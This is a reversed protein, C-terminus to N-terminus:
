PPDAVTGGRLTMIRDFQEGLSPDNSITVLAADTMEQVDAVLDRIRAAAEPELQGTPEDAVVIDPRNALARAIAVRRKEGDSLAAPYRNARDAIALRALLEDVWAKDRGGGHSQPILANERVTLEPVLQPTQFVLGLVDRRLRARQRESLEGVDTGNVLM